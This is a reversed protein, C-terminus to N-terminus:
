GLSRSLARSRDTQSHWNEDAFTAPGYSKGIM